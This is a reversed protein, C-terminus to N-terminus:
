LHFQWPKRLDGVPFWDKKFLQSNVLPLEPLGSVEKNACQLMYIVSEMTCHDQLIASGEVRDEGGRSHEYSQIYAWLNLIPCSFYPMYDITLM